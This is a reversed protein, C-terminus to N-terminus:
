FDILKHKIWGCMLKAIKCLWQKANSWTRELTSEASLTFRAVGLVLSIKWAVAITLPLGNECCQRMVNLASPEIRFGVSVMGEANKHGTKTDEAKPELV